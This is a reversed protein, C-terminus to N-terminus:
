FKHIVLDERRNSYYLDDNLPLLYSQFGACRIRNMLGLVVSDDIQFERVCSYQTEPDDDRGTYRRHYEKGAKSELFRNLMSINPIDGILARGGDALLMMIQDCFNFISTDVIVYQLVSYCLIADFNMSCKKINYINYPFFGEVKMINESDEVNSLTEPSDVLVLQHNGEECFSILKRTLSSAGCGIDLIKKNQSSLISLKSVIDQLILEEYGERSEKSFGIKSVDDLSSNTAIKQFDKYNKPYDMSM